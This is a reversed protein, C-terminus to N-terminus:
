EGRLTVTPDVRTARRAPLYCAVLAVAALTFVVMGFTTPDNPTVKFLMTKIYKTLLLAGGVGIVIGAVTTMLGQRVVLGVVQRQNAGLAIRVGIERARETVGHSIVGYLGVSALLLAIGAFVGLIVMSARERAMGGGMLEEMTQPSYAPLNPELEQFLAKVSQTLTAANIDSRVVLAPGASPEQAFPLYVQLPTDRNVGNLKVDKVVGVIERWPTESEPWGQKLRNGLASRGPWFQRAFSENVVAVNAQGRRDSELLLRGELLHIGFVPFYGPSVPTFAGSPIESRSPAPRDSVIFVSGWQSGEIPLSLTLAADTVGPLARTRTILNDAFTVVREDSWGAGAISYRLTLINRPDFGKDVSTLQQMTRVMLGAGVLLIVALAVEVVMLGRRLRHSQGTTSTKGSRILTQQGSLSSAQISPFLGFVLGSLVTAAAAFFLVDSDLRVEEMRPLGAPALALLGKLLGWGAAVGLVGGAASIVSSEVLLQRVLRIRSGGLAARLAFEQRRSASRTLLLNAVNVCALLLLFGVASMLAVLTTGTEGVIRAALPQLFAGIDTNTNPHERSLTAALAEVESRASSETVGPRLRGYAVVGMHNSRDVFAPISTATGLPEYIEEEASVFWFSAPLVGAIEHPANHITLIRGVAAPDGGLRKRWFADSVLVVHPAGTRDDAEIFGRGLAPQVSLLRLFNWTVQRGNIREAQGLGTLTYTMSRGCVLTEFSTARAQWDACDPWSMSAVAGARNTEAMWMVQDSNALPLPRIVVANVVSFIATSAGIGLMLTALATVTFSRAKLLSRVAYRLDQFLNDMHSSRNQAPLSPRDKRQFREFAYRASVVMATRWYWGRAHGQRASASRISFEETLDGLITQGRVGRPLARRLLWAALRPPEIPTTM